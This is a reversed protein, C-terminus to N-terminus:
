QGGRDEPSTRPPNIGHLADARATREYKEKDYYQKPSAAVFPAIPQEEAWALLTYLELNIDRGECFALLKAYVDDDIELLMNVGNRVSVPWM